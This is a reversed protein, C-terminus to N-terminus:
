DTMELWVSVNRIRSSPDQAVSSHLSGPNPNKKTVIERLCASCLTFAGEKRTFGLRNKSEALIRTAEAGGFPKTQLLKM